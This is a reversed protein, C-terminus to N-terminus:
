IIRCSTNGWVNERNRQMLEQISEENQQNEQKRCITFGISYGMGYYGTKTLITHVIPDYTSPSDQQKLMCLIRQLVNIAVQILIGDINMPLTLGHPPMLIWEEISVASNNAISILSDVMEGAPAIPYESTGPGNYRYMMLNLIVEDAVEIDVTQEDLTNEIIDIGTSCDTLIDTLKPDLAQVWLNSFLMRCRSLFLSPEGQLFCKAEKTTYWIQFYLQAIREFFHYDTQDSPISLDIERRGLDTMLIDSMISLTLDTTVSLIKKFWLFHMQRFRLMDQGHIKFQDWASVLGKRESVFKSCQLLCDLLITKCLNAYSAYCLDGVDCLTSIDKHEHCEREPWITYNGLNCPWALRCGGQCQCFRNRLMLMLEIPRLESDEGCIDTSIVPRDPDRTAMIVYRGRDEMGFCWTVLRLKDQTHMLRELKARTEDVIESHIDYGSTSHLVAPDNFLLISLFEFSEAILHYAQRESAIKKTKRWHHVLEMFSLLHQFGTPSWRARMWPSMQDWIVSEVAERDAINIRKSYKSGNPM